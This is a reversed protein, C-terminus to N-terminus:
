KKYTQLWVFKRNGRYTAEQYGWPFYLAYGVRRQFSERNSSIRRISWIKPEAMNNEIRSTWLRVGCKPYRCKQHLCFAKLKLVWKTKVLLLTKFLKSSCIWIKKMWMTYFKSQYIEVDFIVPPTDCRTCRYRCGKNDQLKSPQLVKGLTFGEGLLGPFTFLFCTGNLQANYSANEIAQPVSDVGVVRKM